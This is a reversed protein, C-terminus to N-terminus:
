FCKLKEDKNQQLDTNQLEDIKVHEQVVTRLQSYVGASVKIKIKTIFLKTKFIFKLLDSAIKLLDKFNKNKYSM